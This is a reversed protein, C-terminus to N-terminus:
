WTSDHEGSVRAWVEDSMGPVYTNRWKLDEDYDDYDIDQQAAVAFTYPKYPDYNDEDESDSEDAWSKTVVPQKNVWPALKKVEVKPEPKIYDSLMVLGSPKTPEAVKKVEAPKAVIAAWGTKVEQKEVEVKKVTACLVPYNEVPKSVKKSPKEEESDSEDMLGAFASSKKKDQVKPKTKEVDTAKARREAKEREKDQQKLTPCFKVTHGLKFCYKCETALLEQCLPKSKGNRDALSYTYHSYESETKGLNLCFTCIPKKTAQVNRSM